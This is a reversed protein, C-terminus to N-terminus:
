YSISFIERAREVSIMNGDELEKNITKLKEEGKRKKMLEKILELCLSLNMCKSCPEKPEKKNDINTYLFELDQFNECKEPIINSEIRCRVNWDCNIRCEESFAYSGFCSSEKKLCDIQNKIDDKIANISISFNMRAIEYIECLEFLPCIICEPKSSPQSFCEKKEKMAKIELMKNCVEVNFLSIEKSTIGDTLASEFYNCYESHSLCREKSCIGYSEEQYFFCEYARPCILCKHPNKELTDNDIGFMAGKVFHGFCISTDLEEM